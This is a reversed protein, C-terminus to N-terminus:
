NEGKKRSLIPKSSKIELMIVEMNKNLRRVPFVKRKGEPLVMELVLNEGKAKRSFGSSKIFHRETIAAKRLLCPIKM